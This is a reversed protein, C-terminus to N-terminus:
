ISEEKLGQEQIYSTHCFEDQGLLKQEHGLGPIAQLLEGCGPVAQPVPCHPVPSHPVPSHTEGGESGARALCLPVQVTGTHHKGLSWCCTPTSFNTSASVLGLFLEQVLSHATVSRGRPDPLWGEELMQKQKCHQNVAKFGFECWPSNAELKSHQTKESRRRQWLVIQVVSLWVSHHKLNLDFGWTSPSVHFFLINNVCNNVNTLGNPSAM